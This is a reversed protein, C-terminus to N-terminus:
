VKFPFFNYKYEKILRLIDINRIEKSFQQRFEKLNQEFETYNKVEFLIEFEWSGLARLVFLINPHFEAFTLMMKELDQNVNSVYVLIDYFEYGIKELDIQLTFGNIVHEDKLKKLRYKVIDVTTKTEKAINVINKRSDQSISKLIKRDIDDIEKIEKTIGYEIMKSTPKGLLYDRTFGPSRINILINKEIIHKGHEKEIEQYINLMDIPSKALISFSLDYKGSVSAVWRINQNKVLSEIINKEDEQTINFLRLFVRYHTYGLSVTNIFTIFNKIIGKEQLRKIKYGIAQETLGVEKALAKNTARSNQDLWYLLKKDKIDLKEM